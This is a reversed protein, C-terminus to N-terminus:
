GLVFTLVALVVAILVTLVGIRKLESGLYGYMPLPEQQARIMSAARGRSRSPAASSPARATAPRPAAPTTVAPPRSATTRVPAPAPTDAGDQESQTTAQNRGRGPRRRKRQSLQAQRSAVRKKKSPM